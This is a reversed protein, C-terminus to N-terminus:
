CSFDPLMSYQLAKPKRDSVGANPIKMVETLNSLTRIKVSIENKKEDIFQISRERRQTCM